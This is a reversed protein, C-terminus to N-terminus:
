FHTDVFLLWDGGHERVHLGCARVRLDRMPIDPSEALLISERAWLDEFVGVAVQAQVARGSASRECPPSRCVLLFVVRAGWRINLTATCLIVKKRIFEFM